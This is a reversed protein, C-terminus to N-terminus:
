QCRLILKAVSDFILGASLWKYLMHGRCLRRVRPMGTTPTISGVLSTETRHCTCAQQAEPRHSRGRLEQVLATTYTLMIQRCSFAAEWIWWFPQMGRPRCPPSLTNALWSRATFLTRHKAPVRTAAGRAAGLQLCRSQQEPAGSRSALHQQSKTAAAKPVALAKQNATYRLM